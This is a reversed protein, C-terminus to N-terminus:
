GPMRRPEGSQASNYALRVATSREIPEKLYTRPTSCLFVESERVVFASMKRAPITWSRQTTKASARQWRRKNRRMRARVAQDTVEKNNRSGERVDRGTLVHDGNAKKQVKVAKKRDCRNPDVKAIVEYIDTKTVQMNVFKREGYSKDLTTNWRNFEEIADHASGSNLFSQFPKPLSSIDSLQRGILKASELDTIIDSLKESKAKIPMIDYVASPVGLMKEGIRQAYWWGGLPLISHKSPCIFCNQLTLGNHAIGTYSFYCCLNSLRSMIWAVHRDPLSGGFFDKIDSLLFVDEPKNLVLCFRRDDLSLAYLIHPMFRSIEEEMKKNAYRLGKIQSVANDFFKKHKENFVYTVTSNAIYAEGLEFPFQKLYKGIYKKGSKDRLILRNSVEWTGSEILRLAEEYLQNVKAMVENAQPDSSIDPHYARAIERYEAIVVQKDASSFLDGCKKSSLIQQATLM